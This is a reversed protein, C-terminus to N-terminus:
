AFDTFEVLAVYIRGVAVVAYLDLAVRQGGKGGMM